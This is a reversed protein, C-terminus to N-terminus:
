IYKKKRYAELSYKFDFQKKIEDKFNAKSFIKNYIVLLLDKKSFYNSLIRGIYFIVKFIFSLNGLLSQFKIFKRLYIDNTDSFSISYQIFVPLITDEVRLDTTTETYDLQFFSEKKLSEEFLGLDTAYTITKKKTFYKRYVTSSGQISTSKLVLKNPQNLNEHDILSDLYIVNM